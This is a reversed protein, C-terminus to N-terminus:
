FHLSSSKQTQIIRSHESCRELNEEHPGRSRADNIFVAYKPTYELGKLKARRGGETDALM